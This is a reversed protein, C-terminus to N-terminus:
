PAQDPNDNLANMFGYAALSGSDSPPSIRVMSQASRRPLLNLCPVIVKM